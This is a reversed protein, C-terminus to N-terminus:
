ARPGVAFRDPRAATTTHDQRCAARCRTNDCRQQILPTSAPAPMPRDCSPPRPRNAERNSLRRRAAHPIGDSRERQPAHLSHKHQAAVPSGTGTQAGIRTAARSPESMSSQSLFRRDSAQRQDHLGALIAGARLHGLGRAQRSSVNATPVIPPHHPPIRRVMVETMVLHDLVAVAGELMGAAPRKHPRTVAARNDRGRGVPGAAATRASQREGRRRDGDHSELATHSHVAATNSSWWRPSADLRQVACVRVVARVTM